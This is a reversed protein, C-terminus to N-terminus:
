DSKEGRLMKNLREDVDIWSEHLHYKDNFSDIGIAHQESHHERCLALVQNGYHNIENRNRGRGVAFRHALDSHPKGCIVCTRNLTSVYLFEKDNKMLDSTKVNLPIDHLFVWNLIIEVLQKAQSKSCNSMSIQEYGYISSLYDKFMQRMYERPQGTHSEIDNCLAFIKKRQQDTIKNPDIVKIEVDVPLDNELLLLADKNLSVNRVVVDYKGNNKQHYRNILPM